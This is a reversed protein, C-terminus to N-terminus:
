VTQKWTGSQKVYAKTVPKWVGSQKVYPTSNKWAGDFHVPINPATNWVFEYNGNTNPSDSVLIESNLNCLPRVGRYGIYAYSFTLTGTSHVYRVYCSDAAYPTSLWYYWGAGTNFSSNTYNSNAVAEATPYAVRSADNSFGALLTGEAVGENALGVETVSALFFKDTVTETGGGDTVTNKVVTRTTPLITAKFAASLGTMFGSETEYPNYGSSVNAASPPADAGHQAAYWAAAESNLWCRLNAYLYRNNGYLRRNSDSNSAEMADFAKICLIKDSILTVSNVPYGTHNKAVVKFVIPAGYCLSTTDVVKAGVSLNSLAQPM